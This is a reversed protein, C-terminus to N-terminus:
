TKELCKTCRECYYPNKTGCKPCVWEGNPFTKVPNGSIKKSDPADKALRASSKALEESNEVLEGFGYILLASAYSLLFGGALIGIFVPANIEMRVRYYGVDHRGFAFAFAVSAVLMAIFMVVAVAKLKGGPNCFM